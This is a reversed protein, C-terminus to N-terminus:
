RTLGERNQAMRGSRAPGCAERAEAMRRGIEAAWHACWANSRAHDEATIRGTRATSWFEVSGAMEGGDATREPRM